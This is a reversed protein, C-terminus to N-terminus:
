TADGDNDAPLVTDQWSGPDTLAYQGGGAYDNMARLRAASRANRETIERALSSDRAHQAHQETDHEAEFPCRGGPVPTVSTIVSDDWSRGCTGCTAVDRPNTHETVAIREALTPMRVPRPYEWSMPDEPRGTM